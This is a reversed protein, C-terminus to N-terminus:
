NRPPYLGLLAICYNMVQFPQMNTHPQGGGASTVTAANLTVQTGAAPSSSYLNMVPYTDTAASNAYLNGAPAVFNADADVVNTSHSHAPLDTARLTVSEVGGYTGVPYNTNGDFGMAMPTRGRLDPLAFTTRGDGGSFQTGLLAALAQNQQIPLISGDCIAWGKPAFNFSFMRIEGVFPEM